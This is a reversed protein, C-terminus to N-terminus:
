ITTPPGTLSVMLSRRTSRIGAGDIRTTPLNSFTIEPNIPHRYSTNVDYEASGVGSGQVFSANIAAVASIQGAFRTAHQRGMLYEVLWNYINDPVALQALKSALTSHRVTNFAMSFDLAIITVYANNNLLDSVTHLITIIAACDLRNPLLCVSGPPQM